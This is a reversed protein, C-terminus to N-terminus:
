AAGVYQDIFERRDGGVAEEALRIRIVAASHRAAPRCPQAHEIANLEAVRDTLTELKFSEGAIIRNAIRLVSAQSWLTPYVAAGWTVALIGLTVAFVRAAIGYSRMPADPRM